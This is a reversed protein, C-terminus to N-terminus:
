TSPNVLGGVLPAQERKRLRLPTPAYVRKRAKLLYAGAPLPNFLGRRLMGLALRNPDGKPERPAVHLYHRAATVELGLLGLWDRLRSETLM